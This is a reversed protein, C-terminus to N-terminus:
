GYQLALIRLSIVSIRISWECLMASRQKMVKKLLPLNNVPKMSKLNSKRYQFLIMMMTMMVQIVQVPRNEGQQAPSHSQARVSRVISVIRRFRRVQNLIRNRHQSLSLSSRLSYELTFIMVCKKKTVDSSIRDLGEMSGMMRNFDNSEFGSHQSNISITEDKTQSKPTTKSNTSTKKQEKKEKKDKRNSQWFGVIEALNVHVNRGNMM